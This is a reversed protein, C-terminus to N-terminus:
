SGGQNLNHKERKGNEAPHYSQLVEEGGVSALIVSNKRGQTDTLSDPTDKLATIIPAKQTRWVTTQLKGTSMKQPKTGDAQEQCNRHTQLIKVVFFFTIDKRFVQFSPSFPWAVDTNLVKLKFSRIMEQEVM